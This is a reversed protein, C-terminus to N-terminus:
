AAQAPTAQTLQSASSSGWSSYGPLARDARRRALREAETTGGWVGSIQDQDLAWRLCQPRVPCIACMQLAM